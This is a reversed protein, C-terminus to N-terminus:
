EVVERLRNIEDFKEFPIFYLERKGDEHVILLSIERLKNYVKATMGKMIEVRPLEVIGRERFKKLGKKVM